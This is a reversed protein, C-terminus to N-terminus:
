SFCYTLYCFNWCIGTFRLTTPPTYQKTQLVNCSHLLISNRLIGQMWIQNFFSPKTTLIFVLLSVFSDLRVSVTLTGIQLSWQECWRMTMTWISIKLIPPTKSITQIQKPLFSNRLSSALFPNQSDTCFWWNNMGVLFSITNFHLFSPDYM